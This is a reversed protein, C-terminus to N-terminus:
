GCSKAALFGLHIDNLRYLGRWLVTNGPPGDSNRALYGGLRALKVLYKALNPKCPAAKRNPVLHDLLAMEEDTFVSSPSANNASRATMTLWFVRWSLICFIALLNTLRSATRLKSEEARCGSKLIKHFTEIKWRMAYWKLKEVAEELHAVHLDTVLKWDIGEGGSEKNQERAHIVTVEIPDYRKQKDAPPCLTLRQFRISLCAKRTQGKADQVEIVHEGQAPFLQM